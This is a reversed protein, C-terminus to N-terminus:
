FATDAARRKSDDGFEGIRLSPQARQAAATATLIPDVKESHNFDPDNASGKVQLRALASRGDNSVLDQGAKSYPSRINVASGTARLRHVVDRVGAAFEPDKVSGSRSQVLVREDKNVRYSDSLVRDAHGSEGTGSKSVSITKTG